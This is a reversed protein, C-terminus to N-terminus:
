LGLRNYVSPVYHWPGCDQGRRDNLSYFEPPWNELAHQIIRMKFPVHVVCEDRITAPYQERDITRQDSLNVAIIPLEFELALELEWRVYKYLNKTSQGILVLVTDAKSMRDFLKGKIYAENRASPGMTDLGHADEFDFDLRNNAKWGRLYQYAWMDNDGDFVVYVCKAVSSKRPGPIRSNSNYRLGTEDSRSRGLPTTSKDGLAALIEAASLPKPEPPLAKLLDVLASSYPSPREPPLANLLGTFANSNPGLTNPPLANLLGTLANFHPGSQDPQLANLLGALANSHRGTADLAALDALWNNPKADTM